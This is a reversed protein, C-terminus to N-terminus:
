VTVGLAELRKRHQAYGFRQAVFSRGANVRASYGRIDAHLGLAIDVAREPGCYLAADGFVKEFRPPLIVPVGVAMAEFITRGFAENLYPSSFYVFIDLKRLYDRPSIADFPYVEWNEPKYGIREFATEAGGLISVRVDDREPYVRLISDGDPPWKEPFDRGHRGIVPIENVPANRNDSWEDVDIINVWDERAIEIDAKEMELGERAQVGIPHWIPTVGFLQRANYDIQSPDYIRESGEDWGRVPAQNCVIVLHKAKLGPLWKQEELLAPPYRLIAIDATAEINGSVWFVYEGDILELVKRNIRRAANMDYRHLHLLGTRLGMRKHAKIEQINSATTGGQMRFDSALIVDVKEHGWHMESRKAPPIMAPPVPFPRVTQPHPVYPNKVMDHWQEVAQDYLWRAGKKYGQYGTHECATLSGPHERLISVVGTKCDLVSGKGFVRKIRKLFESDGAFLVADWFGIGSLVPEKRFMLSSMNPFVYFGFHGRREFRLETTARVHESRTAVINNNELLPYIQRELKRPHSWDDSDHLTVFTGGAKKLAMNRAIYPGVNKGTEMVVVRNDTEAIKRILPLTGDTSADNVIFLEINHWTQNLVSRISGAIHREANHAAMIVTVLPGNNIHGIKPVKAHLNDLNLIKKPEIPSVTELASESLARNFWKLRQKNGQNRLFVANKGSGIFSNSLALKLDVSNPDEAIAALCIKRATDQDGMRLRCEGDSIALASASVHRPNTMRVVSLYRVVEPLCSDPWGNLMWNALIWAAAGRVEQLAHGDDAYRKLEQVAHKEFGMELRKKLYNIKELRRKTEGPVKDGIENREHGPNARHTIIRRSFRRCILDATWKIM